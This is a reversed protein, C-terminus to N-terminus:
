NQHVPNLSEQTNDTTPIHRNNTIRRKRSNYDFWPNTEGYLEAWSRQESTNNYPNQNVVPSKRKPKSESSGIYSTLPPTRNHLPRTGKKPIRRWIWFSLIHKSIPPPLKQSLNFHVSNFWTNYPLWNTNPNYGIFDYEIDPFSERTTAPLQQWSGYPIWFDVTQGGRGSHEKWQGQENKEKTILKFGAAYSYEIQLGQEETHKVVNELAQKRPVASGALNVCNSFLPVPLESTINSAINDKIIQKQHPCNYHYGEFTKVEIRIYNIEEDYDKNKYYKPATDREM